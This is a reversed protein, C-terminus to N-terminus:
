GPLRPNEDGGCKCQCCMRCAKCTEICHDYDEDRLVWQMINLHTSYPTTPFLSYYHGTELTKITETKRRRIVHILEYVGHDVWKLPLEPLESVLVPLPDPDLLM